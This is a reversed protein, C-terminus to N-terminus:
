LVLNRRAWRRAHLWARGIRERVTLCRFLVLSM